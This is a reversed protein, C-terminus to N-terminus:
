KFRAAAELGEEWRAGHMNEEHTGFLAVAVAAVGVRRLLESGAELAPQGPATLARVAAAQVRYNHPFGHLLVHDWLAQCRSAELHLKHLCAALRVGAEAGAQAFVHQLVDSALGDLTLSPAPEDQQAM